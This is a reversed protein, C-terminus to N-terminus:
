VKGTCMPVHRVRDEIGTSTGRRAPGMGNSSAVLPHQSRTTRSGSPSLTWVTQVAYSFAVVAAPPPGPGAPGPRTWVQTQTRALNKRRRRPRMRPRAPIYIPRCSQECGLVYRMLL